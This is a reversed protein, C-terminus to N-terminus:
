NEMQRGLFGAATRTLNQDSEQLPSDGEGLLLMVCGMLDGQSLIPAAAGLHYNGAAESAHIRSEGSKYLYNKRQEMLKDLEPSNPKDMLDRKPAGHLAIITDRDAVAAIHGTADGISECMASAFEQLDGMPSYKRFIVGGDKETYIELPDGERVVNVDYVEDQHKIIKQVVRTKLSDVIGLNFNVAEEMTDPLVGSLLISDIDPKLMVEFYKYNVDKGDENEIDQHVIIKDVLLELDIRDLKEKKLMKAFIDMAVKASRNLRIIDNRRNNVQTIQAQISKIQAGAEQILSDYTEDLTDDDFLGKAADRAKQTVLSKLKAQTDALQKNLNKIAGDQVGTFKKEDKISTQLRKIMDKSTDQLMQLYTMMFAEIQGAKVYHNSCHNKGYKAYTSCQYTEKGDGRSMTNLPRGCEGCFLFGSYVNENKKKGRYHSTTRRSHATQAASFIRHEIIAPHHNEIVIEEDEGTRVDAGNIKAREYKHQRLTGIYFDNKLITSITVASWKGTINSVSYDLGAAERRVKESQRPTPLGENTLIIAMKKYGLEEEVYMRFIRQIVEVEEPVAEFTMKKTNIMRFGYPVSCIWEGREQRNKVVSRVKRSTDTVPLENLLFRFQIQLWQDNDPFIVNDNISIIRINLDRLTELEVLGLSNRRSFRSFDKFIVTDYKGQMLAKRLEQYGPRQAFTYGSKDRDEYFVVKRNPYNDRVYKEIIAKQNEISTNEGSLDLDVSIRVYAAIDGGHNKIM